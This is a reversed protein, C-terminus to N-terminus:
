PHMSSETEICLQTTMSHKNEDDGNARQIIQGITRSKLRTPPRLAMTPGDGVVALALISRTALGADRDSASMVVGATV